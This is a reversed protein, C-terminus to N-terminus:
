IVVTANYQISNAHDWQGDHIVFLTAVAEVCCTINAFSITPANAELTVDMPPPCTTSM